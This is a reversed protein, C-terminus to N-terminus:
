TLERLYGSNGLFRVLPELRGYGNMTALDIVARCNVDEYDLTLKGALEISGTGTEFDADNFTTDAMDVPVYLDTAGQTEPFRLHVYGKQICELLAKPTRDPRISVEIKQDRESLKRVLESM